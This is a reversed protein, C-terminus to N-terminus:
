CMAGRADSQRPVKTQCSEEDVYVDDIAAASDEERM